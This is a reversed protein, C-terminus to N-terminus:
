LYDHHDYHHLVLVIIVFQPLIPIMVVSSWVALHDDQVQCETGGTILRQEKIKIMKFPDCDGWDGSYKCGLCSPSSCFCTSPFSCSHWLLLLLLLALAPGPTHSPTPLCFSAPDPNCSPDVAPAPSPLSAPASASEALVQINMMSLISDKWHIKM